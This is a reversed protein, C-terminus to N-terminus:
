AREWRYNFSISLRPARGAHPLVEHRLWSEWLLVTGAKPAISVFPQLARPARARRPPAAMMLGLRPDEFRIAGAGEPTDVYYSGSVVSLPHIHASHGGGSELLNVWLHDLALRGGQLDLSCARAFLRAHPALADALEAFEPFRWGLDTLSGYSTYGRYGHAACSARGAEDDEALSLIARALAANRRKSQAGLPAEYLPTAFLAQTTM